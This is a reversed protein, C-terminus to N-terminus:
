IIACSICLATFIALLTYLLETGLADELPISGISTVAAAFWVSNIRMEPYIHGHKASIKSLLFDSYFGSIVSGLSYGIGLSLFVLGITSTSLNFKSSFTRPFLTYQIYMIAFVTSMYFTTLSINPYRLLVFPSFPNFHKKLPSITPLSSQVHHFTEPLAFYIL